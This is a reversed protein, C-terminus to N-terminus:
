LKLAENIQKIEKILPQAKTAFADYEYVCLYMCCGLKGGIRRLLSCEGTSLFLFPIDLNEKLMDAIKLNELQQQMNEAGAVIKCIDAGRRQHELAIKLIEEPPMFKFIHSSMLVKSGKEHLKKILEEQKKVAVEDYTMEGPQHDFYDGMVDCLGAKGDAAALIEEALQEDSKGENKGVRYNTVYSLKGKTHAFLDKWVEKTQYEKKLQELQIGFADAGEADALEILKKVRDPTDAQVMATLLPRDAMFFKQEKGM